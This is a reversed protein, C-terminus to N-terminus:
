QMCVAERQAFRLTASCLNEGPDVRSEPTENISALVRTASTMLHGDQPSTFVDWESLPFHQQTRHTISIMLVSQM